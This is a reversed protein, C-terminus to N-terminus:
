PALALLLEALSRGAVTQALPIRLIQVALVCAGGVVYLRHPRGRTRWDYALMVFILMDVVLAGGVGAALTQVASARARFDAISMGATIAELALVLRGAAANMLNATALLMARKHTEPRRLNVIAVAFFAAFMAIQTTAIIAGARGAAAHGVAIEDSLHHVVLAVGTFVMATALSIGALGLARHLEIRGRGVLRTQLVLLITWGFFLLGHIHVLAPAALRDTALPVLYTPAFGAFALAAFILALFFYFSSPHQAARPVGEFRTSVAAESVIAM